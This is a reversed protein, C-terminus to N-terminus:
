YRINIVRERRENELGTGAELLKSKKWKEEEENGKAERSKQM